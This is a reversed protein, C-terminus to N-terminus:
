IQADENIFITLDALDTDTATRQILSFYCMHAVTVTQEVSTRKSYASNHTQRHNKAVREGTSQNAM